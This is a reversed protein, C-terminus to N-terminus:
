QSGLASLLADRQGGQHVNATITDRGIQQVARLRHFGDALWYLDQDFYVDIPPLEIGQEYAEAYEDIVTQNLEARTQTGETSIKDIPIIEAVPISRQSPYLYTEVPLAIM